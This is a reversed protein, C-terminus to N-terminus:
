RDLRNGACSAMEPALAQVLVGHRGRFSWAGEKKGGFVGKDLGEKAEMRSLPPERAMILRGVEL